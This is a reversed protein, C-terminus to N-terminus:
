SEAPLIGAKRMLLALDTGPEEPALAGKEVSAIWNDVPRTHFISLYVRTADVDEPNSPDRVIVYWPSDAKETLIRKKEEHEFVEQVQKFLIWNALRGVKESMAPSLSFGSFEGKKPDVKAKAHLIIVVNVYMSMMALLDLVRGFDANFRQWGNDQKNDGLFRQGTEAAIDQQYWDSYQSGSDLVLNDIGLAEVGEEEVLKHASELWSQLDALNRFEYIDEDAPLRGLSTLAAICNPDSAIWKTRGLPLTSVATTKFTKFAGYVAIIRRTKRASGKGPPLRSSSAPAQVAAPVASSKKAM